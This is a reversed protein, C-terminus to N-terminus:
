RELLRRQLTPYLLPAVAPCELETAALTASFWPKAHSCRSEPTLSSSIFNVIRCGQNQTTFQPRIKDKFVFLQRLFHLPPIALFPFPPSSLPIVFLGASVKPPSPYTGRNMTTFSECTCVCSVHVKFIYQKKKKDQNM